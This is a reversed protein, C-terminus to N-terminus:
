LLLLVNKILLAIMFATFLATTTHITIITRPLLIPLVLVQGAQGLVVVIHIAIALVQNLRKLSPYIKLIEKVPKPAKM